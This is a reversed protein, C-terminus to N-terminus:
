CSYRGYVDDRFNCAQVIRYIGGILVGFIVCFSGLAFDYQFALRYLDNSFYGLIRAIGMVAFISGLIWRVALEVLNPWATFMIGAIVILASAVVHVVRAEKVINAKKM